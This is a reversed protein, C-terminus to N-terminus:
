FNEGLFVESEEPDLIYGYYSIRPETTEVVKYSKPTEVVCWSHQRWMGDKSLAYGTCLFSIDRNNDWLSASNSHCQCPEGKMMKARGAFKRGRELIHLLDGEIHPLCVSWGGIKLLRQKLIELAPNEHIFKLTWGNKNAHDRWRKDPSKTKLRMNFNM